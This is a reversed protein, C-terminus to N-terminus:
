CAESIAYLEHNEPSEIVWLTVPTESGDIENGTWNFVYFEGADVGEHTVWTCQASAGVGFGLISDLRVKGTALSYAGLHVHCQVVGLDQTERWTIPYGGFGSLLHTGGDIMQAHTHTAHRIDVSVPVVGSTRVRIIENDVGSQLSVGLVQGIKVPNKARLIWNFFVEDTSGLEDIWLPTFANIAVGTFVQAYPDSPTPGYAPNTGFPLESLINKFREGGNLHDRAMEILLNYFSASIELSQGPRVPSPLTM